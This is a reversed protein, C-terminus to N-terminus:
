HLNIVMSMSAARSTIDIIFRCSSMPFDDNKTVYFDRTRERKYEHSSRNIFFVGM